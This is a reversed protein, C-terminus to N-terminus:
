VATIKEMVQLLCHLLAHHGLAADVLCKHVQKGGAHLKAHKVLLSLIRKVLDTIGLDVCLSMLLEVSPSSLLADHKELILIMGQRQIFVADLRQAAVIGTPVM